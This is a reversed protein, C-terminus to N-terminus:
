DGHLQTIFTAKIIRLKRCGAPKPLIVVQQTLGTENHAVNVPILISSSFPPDLFTHAASSPPSHFQLRNRKQKKTQFKLTALKKKNQTKPVCKQM